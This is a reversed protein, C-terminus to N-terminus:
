PLLTALFGLLFGALAGGNISPLGAQPRGRRVLSLLVCLGAVSGAMAGLAPVSFLGVRPAPLFVDASVVLIAPMIMDGMGIVFAGREGGELPGIGERRFSYGKRRPIVFLIPSRSELVGEALSIMHKTRYVSIADYVALIVLLIVVPVIDLSIGFISAAGAAILIGLTDIVYWEPHLYLAATAAVSALLSGGVVVDIDPSLLALIAGFIYVFTLFISVYIVAAIVRRFGFKMLFLLFATFSLLIFLFIFPNAVSSPDEFATLGAERMPLSLLVAGTEVLVLMAPMAALPLWEGLREAHTSAAPNTKHM